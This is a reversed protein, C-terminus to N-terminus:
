VGAYASAAELRARVQEADPRIVALARERAIGVRAVALRMRDVVAVFRAAVDADAVERVLEEAALDPGYGASDLVLVRGLELAALRESADELEDLAAAVFRQEDAAVLLELARLRSELLELADRQRQLLAVLEDEV